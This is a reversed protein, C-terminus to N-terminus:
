KSAVKQKKKPREYSVRKPKQLYADAWTVNESLAWTVFKQAGVTSLMDETLFVSPDEEEHPALETTARLLQLMKEKDEEKLRMPEAAVEKNMIWLMWSHMSHQSQLRPDVASAVSAVACIPTDRAQILRTLKGVDITRQCLFLQDAKSSSRQRQSGGTVAYVNAYYPHEPSRDDPPARWIFQSKMVKQAIKPLKDFTSMLSGMPFEGDQPYWPTDEYDKHQDKQMGKHGSFRRICTIRKTEKQEDDDSSDEEYSSDEEDSSDEEKDEDSSDEDDSSTKERYNKRKNAALRSSFRQPGVATRKKKLPKKKQTQVFMPTPLGLHQLMANNRAINNLRELEYLSLEETTSM